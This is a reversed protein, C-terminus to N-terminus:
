SITGTGPGSVGLGTTVGSVSTVTITANALIGDIISDVIASCLNDFDESHAALNSYRLPNTAIYNTKIATKMAEKSLLLSM